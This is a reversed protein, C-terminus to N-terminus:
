VLGEGHLGEVLSGGQSDKPKKVSYVMVIVYFVYFKCGCSILVDGLQYRKNLRAEGFESMLEWVEM